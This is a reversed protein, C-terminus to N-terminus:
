KEEDIIVVSGSDINSNILNFIKKAVYDKDLLNKQKIRDMEEKLYKPNMSLVSDTNIWGPCVCIIIKDKYLLSLNKSLNIIGAKSASYDLSIPSFTDIGDKSSINIIYKTAKAYKCMLYTGGLNVNIVKVFEEYSKDNIENDISLSANNILIDINYKHFINKVEEENTINLREIYCKINYKKLINNKLKDVKKINTLYTLVLNYGKFAFFNAISEGLSSSAGTILVM